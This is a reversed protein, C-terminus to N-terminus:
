SNNALLTKFDHHLMRVKTIIEDATATWTFPKTDHNWHTIYTNITNILHRLSTFTGRRIAQKTIIGFWIEVQNLWSSGTPTFHFTVNPHKALWKDVDSGSHTSLNDLVVHIQRDQHKAVVQDMFKLFEKTRRRQFCRGLVEGTATNLAAFLNTTGHRTYDHTRKETKSFTMPLLPQTRDLAQVQTKEDISLVVADMPPDLYLGVVDIVKEEFDPDTSLKFTGQRHPQFDYERWLAAVFNHSVSIGIERKLYGAMERSSWHSLGTKEPPSQRTLALITARVQASVEPPRGTSVRDTLGDIGHQEYREIWKYVTPKTTSAMRAIEQASYGEARWLVIQARASVSGDYGEGRLQSQLEVLDEDTLEMVFMMGSSQISTFNM